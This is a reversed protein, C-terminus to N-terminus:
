SYQGGCISIYNNSILYPLVHKRVILVIYHARKGRFSLCCYAHNAKSYIVVKCPGVVHIVRIWSPSVSFFRQVENNCEQDSKTQFDM